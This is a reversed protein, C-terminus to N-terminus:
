SLHMVVHVLYVAHITRLVTFVDLASSIIRERSNNDAGSISVTFSTSSRANLAKFGKLRTSTDIRLIFYIGCTGSKTNSLRIVTHGTCQTFLIELHQLRTDSWFLIHYCPVPGSMPNAVKGPYAQCMPSSANM